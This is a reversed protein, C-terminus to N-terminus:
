LRALKPGSSGQIRGFKTSMVHFCLLMKCTALFDCRICCCATPVTGPLYVSPTLFLALYTIERQIDNPSWFM